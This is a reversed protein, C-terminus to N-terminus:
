RESGEASGTVPPPTGETGDPGAPTAEHLVCLIERDGQEWTAQSPNVFTASWASDDYPIGVYDEFAARCAEDAADKLPQEGPFEEDSGADYDSVGFVEFAHARACDIVTVEDVTTISETDFCDGVELDFASTLSATPSASAAGSGSAAPASASHAASVSPSVTPSPDSCGILVAALVLVAISSVRQLTMSVIM